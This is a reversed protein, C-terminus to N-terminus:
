KEGRIWDIRIKAAEAGAMPDLRIGTITKGRWNPHSGVNFLVERFEGDAALHADVRKDEAMTPSDATTWFLQAAAGASVAIRVRIRTIAEADIRCNGRVMYPDGGVAEVNLIGKRVAFVTIDNARRWGETTTDFDFLVTTCERPVLGNPVPQVGTLRLEVAETSPPPFVVAARSEADYCWTGPAEPNGTVRQLKKDATVDDPETVGALVVRGNLPACGPIEMRVTETDRSYSGAELRACASGIIPLDANGTDIRLIHPEPSYGLFKQILDVMRRPAFNWEIRNGTVANYVDPWLAYNEANDPDFGQQHLGSILLGKAVTTWPFSADHEALQLIASAYRMGNWQVPRGFWTCRWWTSGFIPISAHRMWPFGDVGWQYVFPLGAWAWYEAQKLYDRDGTALYGQLYAECADAAALIDPAHAIVEWVQAARPVRFKRMYDLAKLGGALLKRDGTLRYGRLLTWAKRAVLGNAEFGDHGLGAYDRGKFTGGQEVRTRYRWGGDADQSGLAAAHQSELGRIHALPNSFLCGFDLARPVAGPHADVVARAQTELAERLRTDDTLMATTLVDYLYNPFAGERRKIPPGGHHIRWECLDADWLTELYGQMSWELEDIWQKRTPETWTGETNAALAWAPLRNGRFEQAPLGAARSPKMQPLDRPPAVGYVQFWAQLVALASSTETEVYFAYSLDIVTPNVGPAPWGTGPALGNAEAYTGVSPVSLGMVASAHGTFRDPAAFVPTPRDTDAQGPELDTRRTGDNWTARPHWFLGAVLDDKRVSMMPVTVLHPHQRWRLRHPHTHSIVNNNSSDEDDLIWEMGPVLAETKGPFASEGPCLVPADLALLQGTAPAPATVRCTILRGAAAAADKGTMFDVAVRGDFKTRALAAAEVHFRLGVGAAAGVAPGRDLPVCSAAYLPVGDAPGDVTTLRGLNPIVGVPRRDPVTRVWGIGYGFENKPFLIEFSSCAVHLPPPDTTAPDVGIVMETRFTGSVSEPISWEAGLWTSPTQRQAQLTFSARAKGNPPINVIRTPLAGVPELEPPLTIALDVTDLRANGRNSAVVDVTTRRGPWLVFDTTQFQIWDLSPELRCTAEAVRGSSAFRATLTAGAERAGRLRWAAVEFADPALQRVPKGALADVMELGAPVTLTVMGAPLPQDGANKMLCRIQCDGDPLEYTQLSLIAPLAGVSDVWQIDDIIWESGAAGMVRPAVQLWRFRTAETYDYALVGEHWAGDGFHGQPVQYSARPVGCGEIPSEDMAIANMRLVAGSEARPVRYWFRLGGKPQALMKGQEGSRPVWARNLGTERTGEVAQGTRRLLIARAGSHAVDVVTAETGVIEWDVPLGNPALKEFGGNTVPNADQAVCAAVTLLAVGITLIKM